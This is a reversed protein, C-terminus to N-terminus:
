GRQDHLDRVLVQMTAEIGRRLMTNAVEAVSDGYLGTKLLRKLLEAVPTNATVILEAPDLKVWVRDRSPKISLELAVEAILSADNFSDRIYTADTDLVEDAVIEPMGHEQILLHRVGERYQELTSKRAKPETTAKTM